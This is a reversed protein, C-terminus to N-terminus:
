NMGLKPKQTSTVQDRGGGMSAPDKEEKLDQIGM